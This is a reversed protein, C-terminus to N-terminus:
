EFNLTNIYDRTIQEVEQSHQGYWIFHEGDKISHLEVINGLSQM